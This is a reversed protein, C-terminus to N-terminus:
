EVPLGAQRWAKWGGDLSIADTYGMKQLNDAALASRYGGGCYLVLRTNKDPVRAEIDREIIGKGLHVAGAAHGAAWENDERVDVLLHAQGAALLRRYGEIDIQKVRSKADDVIALFGASHVMTPEGRGIRAGGM